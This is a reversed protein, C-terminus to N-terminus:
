AAYAGIIARWGAEVASADARGIITDHVEIEGGGGSGARLDFRLLSLAPGGWPPAIHGALVLWQGAVVAQVTYWAVGDRGAGAELLIGGPRADLTMRSAPMVRYDQPWWLDIQEVLRHWAGGLDRALPLTFRVEVIRPSRADAM